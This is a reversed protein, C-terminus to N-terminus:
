LGEIVENTANSYRNQTCYRKSCRMRGQVMRWCCDRQVVTLNYSRLEASLISQTDEPDYEISIGNVNGAKVAMSYMDSRIRVCPCKKKKPM